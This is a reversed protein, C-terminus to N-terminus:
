AAVVPRLRNGTAADFLYIAAPKVYVRMASGLPPQLEGKVRVVLRHGAANLEILTEAGLPEVVEVTGDIPQASSRPDSVEALLHEPRIGLVVEGASAQSLARVRDGDLAFSLGGGAVVARAGARDLSGALFNMAPSGIFEAVFLNNPDRYVELPSGQQQVVGDKMVVIIQGMTMAEVQDHTVYVITTQLRKHLKILEARMATRLKADLNSLPEDFLFVAPERVIARGLAVRQRQGGSLQKPRRDLLKQIDLIEAVADIRRDIESRPLKKLELAFGLNRRASMHPYLAYSQFVMALDRERAPLWTVDRDAVYIHGASVEELGAIMRLLTTKGCGSPGVLIVFAGEPIELSVDSVAIVPGFTKRVREIRIGAM